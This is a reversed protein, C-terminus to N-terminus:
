YAASLWFNVKDDCYTFLTDRQFDLVSLMNVGMTVGQAQSREQLFRYIVGREAHKDGERVIRRDEIWPNDGQWQRRQQQHSLALRFFVLSLRV